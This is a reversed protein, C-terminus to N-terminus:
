VAAVAAGGWELEAEMVAAQGSADTTYVVFRGDPSFSPHPHTHQPAYVTVPGDDYPCHDCDWHDGRNTAAPQCVLFQDDRAADLALVRIGHDPNRTDTVIWKGSRDAVPHWANLSSVERRVGDDISVRFLGHPWDVALLERRGPIWTEHVVWEKRTSDREYVLRQGSGDRNIVWMRANHPGSYHLLAADDPHFQPHFAAPAEMICEPAGSQTDVVYLRSGHRQRVTIAWWRDDHSLSTTGMADGVAGPGLMPAEGFQTLTEERLSELSARCARTGATYYVYRGDHSPHISWENLNDSNTVRIIRGDTRREAYVQPRGTSHAVFVLWEMADDYAPVYFFPHHQLARDQFVCRVRKALPRQRPENPRVPDSAAPQQPM